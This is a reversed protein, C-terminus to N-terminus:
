NRFSFPPLAALSPPTASAVAEEPATAPAAATTAERLKQINSKGRDPVSQQAPKKGAVLKSHQVVQSARTSTRTTSQSKAKIDQLALVVTGDAKVRSTWGRGINARIEGDDNVVEQTIQVEDGVKLRPPCMKSTLSPEARVGYEVRCVYFAGERYVSGKRSSPPTGSESALARVAAEQGAQSAAAAPRSIAPAKDARKRQASLRGSSPHVPACRPKQPPVKAHKATQSRPPPSEGRSALRPPSGANSSLRPPSGAKSSLRPPTRTRAAGSGQQPPSRVGQHATKSIGDMPAFQAGAWCGHPDLRHSRM